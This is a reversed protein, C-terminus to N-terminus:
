ENELAGLKEIAEDMWSLGALLEDDNDRRVALLAIRMSRSLMEMLLKEKPTGTRTAKSAAGEMARQQAALLGAQRELNTPPQDVM